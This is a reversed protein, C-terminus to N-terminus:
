AAKKLAKKAKKLKNQQVAIKTKRRKVEKRLSRVKSKKSM